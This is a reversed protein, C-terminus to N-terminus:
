IEAESAIEDIELNITKLSSALGNLRTQIRSKETQLQKMRIPAPIKDMDWMADAYAGSLKRLVDDYFKGDGTLTSIEKCAMLLLRAPEQLNKLGDLIAAQILRSETQLRDYEACIETARLQEETISAANILHIAPATETREEAPHEAMYEFFDKM